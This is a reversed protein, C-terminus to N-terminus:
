IRKECTVATLATCVSRIASNQYHESFVVSTGFTTGAKTLLLVLTHCSAVTDSSKDAEYTYVSLKYLNNHTRTIRTAVHCLMAAPQPQM